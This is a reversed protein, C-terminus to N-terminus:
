RLTRRATVKSGGSSAIVRVVASDKGKLAKRGRKRLKVAFSRTGAKDLEATGKGLRAGETKAVLKVKAPAGSGLKVKVAGDALVRKVKKSTIKLTLSQEGSGQGGHGNHPVPQGASTVELTAEMGPHVTCIFPYSGSRLYETGTVPASGFPGILESSFVPKGDPGRDKASVDHGAIDFNMFTVKEGQDITTVSSAFQNPPIATITGDARAPAAALGAVLLAAAVVRGM